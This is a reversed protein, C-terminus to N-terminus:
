SSLVYDTIDIEHMKPRSLAWKVRKDNGITFVIHWHRIEGTESDVSANMEMMHNDLEEQPLVILMKEDKCGFIYYCKQCDKLEDKKRYGFWYREFHPQQYAKSIAFYFGISKDSTKYVSNSYKVLTKGFYQTIREICKAKVKNSQRESVSSSKEKIEANPFVNINASTYNVTWDDLSLGVIQIAKLCNKHISLASQNVEIYYGNNLQRIARFKNKDKGVYAPMYNAILDFKEPELEALTNLTLEFVERWNKVTFSEGLLELSYPSTGTISKENPSTEERDGFYPWIELAKETLLSSRELIQEKNWSIIDSLFKNMELHSDAYIARKTDYNDNSLESNYATLTLNGITDLLEDHINEWDDGLNKQWWVSLTQPMIHEITLNSMDIKEKHHYGNELSELIFKTKTKREGGGYMKTEKFKTRFEVDKPYGKEALFSKFSDAMKETQCLQIASYATPFIKNLLNSKYDCIFRRILYNELSTLIDIFDSLSLRQSDYESYFFLLIPYATTAELRNMRIFCERLRVNEESEPHILSKYYRSYQNLEKIYEIANGENVQEKLSYYVDNLRVTGGKRMLFHRIFEPMDDELDTQMPLWYKKFIEDQKEQHIRMFFYNKILDAPTLPRGKANLSEFVLYPNDDTGLVISVISFCDTLIKLLKGLECSINRFKKEFFLFAENVQNDSEGDKDIIHMFSLRDLQTPLLKYYDNGDEYQNVLLTNHIKDALKNNGAERAKNRLIALIIFITTLRQQGDILLFKSVGHPVSTTPMNVISGIFHVRPNDLEALETIDKWLVGWEKSTWSYSRQFLPIVYQKTGELIEQLKTEKAHM